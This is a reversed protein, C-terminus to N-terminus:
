DEFRYGCTREVDWMKQDFRDLPFEKFCAWPRNKYVKCLKTKTDLLSCGKCCKGCKKCKRRRKELKNKVYDKDIMKWFTHRLQNVPILLSKM